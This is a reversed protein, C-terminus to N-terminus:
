EIHIDLPKLLQLKLNKMNLQEVILNKIHILVLLEMLLLLHLMFSFILKLIFQDVLFLSFIWFYSLKTHIGHQHKVQNVINEWM